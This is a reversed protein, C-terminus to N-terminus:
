VYLVCNNSIFLIKYTFVNHVIQWKWGTYGNLIYDHQLFNIIERKKWFKRPLDWTLMHIFTVYDFANVVFPVIAKEPVEVLSL